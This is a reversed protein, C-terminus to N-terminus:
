PHSHFHGPTFQGEIDAARENAIAAVAPDAAALQAAEATSGVAQVPTNPFKQALYRRCQALAQPHSAIKEIRDLSGHQNLVLCHHIDVVEEGFIAVTDRRAFSDLTATVPGEISNEIAVVGFEAGGREVADFVSGFSPCPLFSAQAIGLRDSFRQAAEDCYTGAPGLFAITHRTEHAAPIAM